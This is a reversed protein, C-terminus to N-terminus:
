KICILAINRGCLKNARYSHYKSSNCKTCINSCIINDEKVGLDTLVKKNIGVTDIYYKQKGEKVEGLKIFEEINDFNNKFELAVEEDVEFCCELISPCICMILDKPDSNFTEIMTKIANKIIKNLTGRWGSHVNGIVKNKKDYILIGQCDAVMTVLAVGPVNTIIGDIDELNEGLNDKTIVKINTSHTQRSYKIYKFKYGIIKELKEYEKELFDNNISFDFNNNSFLNLINEDLLRKFEIYSDHEIM